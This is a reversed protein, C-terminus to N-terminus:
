VWLALVKRTSEQLRARPLDKKWGVCFDLDDHPALAVKTQPGHGEAYQLPGAQLNDGLARFREFTQRAWNATPEAYELGRADFGPEEGPKLVLVFEVDPFHALPLLPSNTEASPAAVEVQKQNLAEDQAQATELLLGQYSNFITRSRGPDAPLTEFNGGKWSLIRRFAEVGNLEDTAADIVEGGGVWIRGVLPGNIIKLVM